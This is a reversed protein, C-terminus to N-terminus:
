NLDEYNNTKNKKYKLFKFICTIFITILFNIIFILNITNIYIDIYPEETILIYFLYLQTSIGSFIFIATRCNYQIQLQGDSYCSFICNYLCYIINYILILIFYIETYILCFVYGKNSSSLNNFNLKDKEDIMLIGNTLVTSSTFFFIISILINNYNM